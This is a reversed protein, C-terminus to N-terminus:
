HFDRSGIELAIAEESVDSVRRVLLHVVDGQREVRGEAELIVAHRAARRDRAYVKPRVILNAIGSEDELTMFVIGNATSPRQRVLVIGAVRLRTGQPAVAVNRLVGCPVVGRAVLRERICSMPHQKLSLGTAAYDHAVNALPTVPPLVSRSRPLASSPPPEPSDAAASWIPLPEDRLARIQWLAQQRDLGMSRFADASALRRLSAVRVGSAQWLADVTAFPGHARVAAAVREADVTALGRVLRLGLRLAPQDRAACAHRVPVCMSPDLMSPTLTSSSRTSVRRMEQPGTKEQPGTERPPPRSSSRSSSRSAPSARFTPRSPGTADVNPDIPWWGGSSSSFSSSSSSAEAHSDEHPHADGGLVRHIEDCTMPRRGDLAADRELSCDVHSLNVDVARVEVGHEIADRIIQAPAYFGMPQSNILSAAFAAPEFCKLWASVYVLLAFSAAHSEPFGYGSFGQIQRFVQQAFEHTYGREVMGQELKAAFEALKNGKRKWAAIARRLQDAEGPTFGAAVIALSMAQEQFLPVGLTKGLVARVKDDPYSIPEEGNRRRLYPHVMDGQIPGPRVIAVEIVLDYFTRPRLRPLMSMQARSEIQFVGITDARCIMDYVAPIEAPVTHFAIPGNGATARAATTETETETETEARTESRDEGDRKRRRARDDNVLDISKRICTLMGLALIDVKLMGMADIDDKDWEIVTRDAMAANEIPVFASLPGETIVFGGVHQSLHRPFGLIETSLVALRRITPDRPDLGIERVRDIDISGDHWWDIGSSLREVCDLSLGLVKGVDRIASRGRYSIVEAALAARDRGYKRYLYQIVEERREHEFDVDIDPPENREKSIFREFLVDIRDPDVATIGLCFCVASNAAAGRGQCLIHRGRAFAVIDHVTLFYSPYDLEEILRLEHEIQRRVRDSVGRPYREWAGHWVLDVLHKMPTTGRPVVESPYRYRLQDLSFGRTRDALDRTRAVARPLDPFMATMARPSRLYRESNAGLEYGARDLTSGLRICTLVDHLPRRDPVHYQVDNTAVLPIGTWDSLMEMQRALMADDAHGSRSVALSLRDDRLAHGRNSQRGRFADRLGEVCAVFTADLRNPSAHPSRESSPSGSTHRASSRLSGRPPVITCLLGSTADPCERLIELLDHLELRCEGKPARRKGLTLLRCLHGYSALDSAHLVVDLSRGRASTESSAGAGREDDGSGEHVHLSLRSGVVLHIGKEKAAVHARVIGALTHRDTVAIAGYGLRAAHEVLEEPHSSGYLFSFNSTTLLEAFGHPALVPSPSPSPSPLPSPAARAADIPPSAPHRPDGSLLLDGIESAFPHQHLKPAPREPM